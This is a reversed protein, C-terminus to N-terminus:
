DFIGIGRGRQKKKPTIFYDCCPFHCFYNSFIRLQRLMFKSNEITILKFHYSRPHFCKIQIFALSSEPSFYKRPRNVVIKGVMNITLKQM